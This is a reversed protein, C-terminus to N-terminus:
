FVAATIVLQDHSRNFTIFKMSSKTIATKRKQLTIHPGLMPFVSMEKNCMNTLHQRKLSCKSQVTDTQHSFTKLEQRNIKLNHQVLSHFVRHTIDVSASLAKEGRAGEEWSTMEQLFVFCFSLFTQSSSLIANRMLSMSFALSKVYLQESGNHTSKM